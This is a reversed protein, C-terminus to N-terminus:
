PLQVAKVHDEAYGLAAAAGILGRTGTIELLTIDFDDALELTRELTVIGKRCDDSYYRLRRPINIGEWVAMGTHKSSTLDKLLKQIFQILEIKRHPAAAFTLVTSVCNKTKEPTGPYLQVLTHNLYEIGKKRSARWGIENALSWTAGTTKTDTDDIGIHVKEMLPLTYEARGLKSGGGKSIVRVDKLNEALARCKAIGVGGGALGAYTIKLDEGLVKASEIGAPSVSPELKLKASGLKLTFINRAGESKASKVIPSTRPYHYAVWSSAGQCTGRAHYEYIQAIGRAEEVVGVIKQFPSVWFEDDQSKNNRSIGRKSM